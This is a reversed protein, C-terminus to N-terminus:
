DRSHKCAMHQALNPFMRKCYPCVGKQVRKELRERKKREEALLNDGNQVALKLNDIQTELAIGRYSMSHGAPCYFKGSSKLELQRAKWDNTMAFLMGCTCCSEVAFGVALSITSM